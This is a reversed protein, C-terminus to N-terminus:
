TFRACTTTRDTRDSISIEADEVSPLRRLDYTPRSRVAELNGRRTNGVQGRDSSRMGHSRRTTSAHTAHAQALVNGLGCNAAGGLHRYLHRAHRAATRHDGGSFDRKWVERM